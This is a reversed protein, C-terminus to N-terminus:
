ANEVDVEEYVDVNEDMDNNEQLLPLENLDPLLHTREMTSSSAVNQMDIDQTLNHYKSKAHSSSSHDISRSLIGPRDEPQLGRSKLFRIIEPWRPNCTFTIFLDPYGVWKYIAMADQYYQIMYRAGGTFNSSLIVRKGHSSPDIEGQLVADELGKYM